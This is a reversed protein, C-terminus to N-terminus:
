RHACRNSCKGPLVKGRKRLHLKFDRRNGSRVSTQFRASATTKRDRGRRHNWDTIQSQRKSENYTSPLLIKSWLPPMRNLESINRYCLCRAQPAPPCRAASQERAAMFPCSARKGWLCSAQAVLSSDSSWQPGLF